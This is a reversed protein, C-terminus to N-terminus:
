PAGGSRIVRLEGLYQVLRPHHSIGELGGPNPSGDARRAPRYAQFEVMGYLPVLPLDEEVLIREAEELLRLRREADTEREAQDLLAEYRPSAYGRDNNGDGARNLDLFTTPDGYDGFWIGRAAMYDRTRLDQKISKSDKTEIRTRVGLEREWMSGIALALDRHYTPTPPCLLSVEPFPEGRDNERRGDGDRDIWGAAALTDRAASPDDALGAPSRYGGMSGPPILVPTPSEGTRKVQDTLARKDIALAFARRVRADAFPNPAGSALREACNFNYFYTGFARLAHIDDREGRRSQGLLEAAYEVNVDSDWDASGSQFALLGTSSSAVPKIRIVRSLARSPDRFTPSRELVIERRFRWARLGYPGNGVLAGAKTWGEDQRLAGSEADVFTAREVTPPHVPMFPGFACLDLFYSTPRALKVVLTREDPASLGVSEAFRREAEDRLARAADATREPAPRRAYEKLQEARWHFFAEAGEIRFFLATYDAALDPMLARRWSFIFDSARVPDGNSWRGGSDLTFTYIMGDPSITWSEAAAPRITFDPSQIDWRTLGEFLAYARRFDQQFSMRQPDMTLADQTEIITLDAEAGAGLMGERAVLAMALVLLLVPVALLRLM